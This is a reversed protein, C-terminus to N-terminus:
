NCCVSRVIRTDKVIPMKKITKSALLLEQTIMPGGNEANLVGSMDALLKEGHVSMQMFKQQSQNCGYTIVLKATTLIRACTM